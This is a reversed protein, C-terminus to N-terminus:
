TGDDMTIGEAPSGVSGQDVSSEVGPENLDSVNLILQDLVVLVAGPDRSVDLFLTEVIPENISLIPTEGSVSVPAVRNGDPCRLVHLLQDTNAGDFLKLLKRAATLDGIKM